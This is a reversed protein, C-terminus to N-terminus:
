FVRILTGQCVVVLAEVIWHQFGVRGIEPLMKEIQSTPERLNMIHFEMLALGITSEVPLPCVSLSLRRFNVTSASYVLINFWRIDKNEAVSFGRWIPVGEFECIETVAMKSHVILTTVLVTAFNRHSSSCITQLSARTGEVKDSM